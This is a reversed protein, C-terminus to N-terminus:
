INIICNDESGKNGDSNSTDSMTSGGGSTTPSSMSGASKSSSGSAHRCNGNAAILCLIGFLSVNFHICM